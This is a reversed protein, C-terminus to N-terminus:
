DALTEPRPTLGGPTSAGVVSVTTCALLVAAYTLAEATCSRGAPYAVDLEPLRARVAGTAPHTTLTRCRTLPRGAAASAGFLADDLAHPQADSLRACADAWARLDEAAFLGLCGNGPCPSLPRTLTPSRLAQSVVRQGFSVTADGLFLFSDVPGCARTIDDLHEVCAVFAAAYGSPCEVRLQLSPVDIFEAPASPAGDAQVNVHGVIGHVVPLSPGTRNLTLLVLRIRSPAIPPALCGSAHRFRFAGCVQAHARRGMWAVRDEARRRALPLARAWATTLLVTCVGVGLALRNM